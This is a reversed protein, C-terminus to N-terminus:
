KRKNSNKSSSTKRSSAEKAQLQRKQQEAMERMQQKLKSIERDKAGIKKSADSGAKAMKQQLSRMQRGMSNKESSLKNNASQLRAIQGQLQDIERRAQDINRIQVSIRKEQVSITNSKMNALEIQIEDKTQVALPLKSDIKLVEKDIIELAQLLVEERNRVNIQDVLGLAPQLADYAQQRTTAANKNKSNNAGVTFILGAFVGSLILVWFAIALTVLLRSPGSRSTANEPIPLDM